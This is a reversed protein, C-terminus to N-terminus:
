HNSQLLVLGFGFGKGALILNTFFLPTPNRLSGFVNYVLGPVPMQGAEIKALVSSAASCVISSKGCGPGGLLLLPVDRDEQLIYEEIQFIFILLSSDSQSNSM